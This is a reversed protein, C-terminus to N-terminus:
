LPICSIIHVLSIHCMFVFLLFPSNKKKKPYHFNDQHVLDRWVSECGKECAPGLSLDNDLPIVRRNKPHYARDLCISEGGYQYNLRKCFINYSLTEVMRRVLFQDLIKVFTHRKVMFPTWFKDAIDKM